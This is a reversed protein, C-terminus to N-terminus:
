FKQNSNQLGSLSYARFEKLLMHRLVYSINVKFLGRVYEREKEGELRQTCPYTHMHVQIHLHTPTETHTGHTHSYNLM